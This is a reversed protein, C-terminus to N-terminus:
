PERTVISGSLSIAHRRVLNQDPRVVDSRKAADALPRSLPELTPEVGHDLPQGEIQVGLVRRLTDRAGLQQLPVANGEVLVELAPEVAVAQDVIRRGVDHRVRVCCEAEGLECPCLPLVGHRVVSEHLGVPLLRQVDAIGVNKVREGRLETELSGSGRDVPIQVPVFDRPRGGLRM